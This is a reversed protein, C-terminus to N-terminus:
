PAIASVVAAIAVVTVLFFLLFLVILAGGIVVAVRDPVEPVVGVGLRGNVLVPVGLVFLWRGSAAAVLGRFFLLLLLRFNLNLGFLGEFLCGGLQGLGSGLLRFRLNGSDSGDGRGGNVLVVIGGMVIRRWGWSGSGGLVEHINHVAIRSWRRGVIVRGRLLDGRRRLLVLSGRLLLILSGRLLLVLSWGLLLVLSRGRLLVHDLRRGLLLILDWGLGVHNLRGHVVLRLLREVGISLYLSRLLGETLDGRLLWVALGRRLLKVRLILHSLRLGLWVVPILLGLCTIRLLSVWLLWLLSVVLKAVM